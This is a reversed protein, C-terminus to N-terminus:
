FRLVGKSKPRVEMVLVIISIIKLLVLWDEVNLVVWVGGLLGEFKSTVVIKGFVPKLIGAM